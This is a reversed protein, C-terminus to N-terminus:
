PKLLRLFPRKAKAAVLGYLTDGAEMVDDAGPVLAESGHVLAVLGSGEPWEIEALRKGTLRGSEPVVAEIIETDGALQLIGAAGQRMHALTEGKAFFVVIFANRM